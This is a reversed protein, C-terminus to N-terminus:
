CFRITTHSFESVEALDSEIIRAKAGLPLSTPFAQMMAHTQLVEATNGTLAIETHCSPCLLFQTAGVVYPVPSACNPCNLSHIQSTPKTNDSISLDSLSSAQADGIAVNQNIQHSDKLLQMSLDSLAVAQGASVYPLGAIGTKTYDLTILQQKSRADITWTQWGKGVVMPLEGEGAIATAERRDTVM